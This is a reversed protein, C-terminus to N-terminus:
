LCSVIAETVENVITTVTFGGLGVTESSSYFYDDRGLSYLCIALRFEPCVPEECCKQRELKHRIRSLIFNFTKRSARCTQKFRKENYTNWVMQWWGTNRPLRRAIRSACRRSENNSILLITALFPSKIMVKRQHISM